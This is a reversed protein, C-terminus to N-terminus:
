NREYLYDEKLDKKLQKKARSLYSKVSGEPIHLNQAIEEIKLHQYYKLLIIQKYIDPLRDIAEKLDMREEISSDSTPENEEWVEETLAYKSEKRIVSVCENYVVKTLWTKLLNPDKLHKINMYGKVISEQVIDLALQNDHVRGYAVKYLYEKYTHIIMEYAKANQRM